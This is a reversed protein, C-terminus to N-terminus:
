AYGSFKESIVKDTSIKLKGITKEMANVFDPSGCVWFTPKTYKTATKKVLNIDIHGTLGGWNKSPKTVVFEVEVNKYKNWEKLEKHFTIEELTSNAYLIHVKDTLRKDINYKIISRFPTIGIGGAILIHPGKEKEDLIFTGEPGEGEIITGVELVDLSKKFNSKERMRTAFMIKSGETPSTAITFHHTNGRSDPYIPNPLTFYFYQGPLWSVAKEVEFWFSKTDKAEFRSNVLKLKM